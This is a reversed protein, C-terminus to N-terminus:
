RADDSHDEAPLAQVVIGTPLIRDGPQMDAPCDGLRRASFAQAERCDPLNRPCADRYRTEFRGSYDAQFDGGFTFTTDIRNGHVRCATHVEWSGDKSRVQPADCHEQGPAQSLLLRADVHASTCERTVVPRARRVGEPTLTVEWVGPERQPLEAVAGGSCGPFLLMLALGCVVSRM